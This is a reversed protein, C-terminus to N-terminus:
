NTVTSHLFLRKQRMCTTNRLMKCLYHYIIFLSLFKLFLMRATVIFQSDVKHPRLFTIAARMRM